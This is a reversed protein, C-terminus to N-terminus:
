KTAESQKFCAQFKRSICWSSSNMQSDVDVAVIKMLPIMTQEIEKIIQLFGELHPSRQRGVAVTTYVRSKDGLTFAEWMKHKSQFGLNHQVEISYPFFNWTRSFVLRM